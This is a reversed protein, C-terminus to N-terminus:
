QVTCTYDLWKWVKGVPVCGLVLNPFLATFLYEEAAAADSLASWVQSQFARGEDEIGSQEGM